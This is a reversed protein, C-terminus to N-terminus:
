AKTTLEGPFQRGAQASQGCSRHCAAIRPERRFVPASGFAREGREAPTVGQGHKTAAKGGRPDRPAAGKDKGSPATSDSAQDPARASGAHSAPPGDSRAAPGASGRDPREPGEVLAPPRGERVTALQQQVSILGLGIVLSALLSLASTGLAWRILRERKVAARRQIEDRAGVYSDQGPSSRGLERQLDEDKLKAWWAGSNTTPEDSM